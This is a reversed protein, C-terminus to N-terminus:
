FPKAVALLVIPLLLLVPMENFWRYWVHSRRNHDAAFRRVLRGCYFHYGVLAAVLLLKLHLWGNGAFAAWAYDYLLWLGLVITLWMFPTVFRYLKREMVKFQDSVDPSDTMAHYVFLRPLYFIGAFWGIMFFLHLAKIWLM